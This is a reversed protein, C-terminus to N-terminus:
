IKSDAIKKIDKLIKENKIKEYIPNLFGRIILGEADQKNLGRSMLYYLGEEDLKGIAAGHYAKVDYFDILLTPNITIMANKSLIIGRSKQSCNANTMGKLVKGQVSVLVSANKATVYSDCTSITNKAQHEIYINVVEKIENGLALIKLNVEANEEELYINTNAIGNSFHTILLDLKADRKLHFNRTINAKDKKDIAIYSVKSNASLYIDKDLNTEEYLNIESNLAIKYNTESSINIQSNM